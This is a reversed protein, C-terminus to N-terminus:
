NISILEKIEEFKKDGIGSVNKIEEISKFGSNEERYSVIKKAISDGVGPLTKLQAESATNINIKNSNNNTFNNTQVSVEEGIKPIIIHMGDDLKMALNVRNYDANETLGGLKEVANILRDGQKVTVVGPMKIEGSIYVMIQKDEIYKEDAQVYNEQQKINEEPSVIYVTKKSNLIIGTFVLLLLFSFIMTNRINLKM